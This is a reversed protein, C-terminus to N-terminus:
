PLKAQAKALFDDSKIVFREHTGEGIKGKEDFAEVKFSFRKRDIEVLEAVARVTMGVPTASLHRINIATGVSSQGEGLHEQLLTFATREMLAIMAPTAYVPLGGSGVAVAVNKETVTESLEQRQGIEIM